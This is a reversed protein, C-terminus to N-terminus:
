KYGNLGRKRKKNLKNLNLNSKRKENELFEFVARDIFQKKNVFRFRNEERKIWDEVEMLLNADIRVVADKYKM